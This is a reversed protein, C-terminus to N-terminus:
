EPRFGDLHKIKISKKVIEHLKKSKNLARFDIRPMILYLYLTYSLKFNLFKM